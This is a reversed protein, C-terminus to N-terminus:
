NTYLGPVYPVANDWGQGRVSPSRPLEQPTPPPTVHKEGLGFIQGLDGVTVQNSQPIGVYYLLGDDRVTGDLILRAQVFAQSEDRIDVRATETRMEQGLFRGRNKTIIREKKAAGRVRAQAVGGVEAKFERAFIALEAVADGTFRVVFPANTRLESSQVTGTNMEIGELNTVTLRVTLPYEYILDRVKRDLSSKFRITLTGGIVTARIQNLVTEIGEIFLAERPGQNILVNAKLDMKLVRVNKVTFADNSFTQTIPSRGWTVNSSQLNGYFGGNNTQLNGPLNGNIAQLNGFLGGCVMTGLLVIKRYFILGDMM